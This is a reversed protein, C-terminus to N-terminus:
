ISQLTSLSNVQEIKEYFLINQDGSLVSAGDGVANKWGHLALTQGSTTINVLRSVEFTDSIFGSSLDDFFKEARTGSVATSNYQLELEIKATGDGSVDDIHYRVKYGVRYLGTESITLTPFSPVATSTTATITRTTTDTAEEYTNPKVRNDAM